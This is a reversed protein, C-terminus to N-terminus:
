SQCYNDQIEVHREALSASYKRHTAAVKLRLRVGFFRGTKASRESSIRLCNKYTPSLVYLSSKENAQKQSRAIKKYAKANFNLVESFLFAFNFLRTPLRFKVALRECFRVHFERKM